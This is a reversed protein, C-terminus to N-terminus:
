RGLMIGSKVEKFTGIVAAPTANSITDTLVASFGDHPAAKMAGEGSHYIALAPPFGAAPLIARGVFSDRKVNWIFGTM